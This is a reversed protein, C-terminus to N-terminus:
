AAFGQAVLQAADVGAYDFQLFPYSSRKLRSAILVAPFSQSRTNFFEVNENYLRRAFQIENEVETLEEMMNAFEESARLDPYREAVAIAGRLGCALQNEAVSLGEPGSVALAASRANALRDFIQQEHQAYGRVVAVLNPVLDHRQRLQVDIGSFAEDVKNRAHVLVNYTYVAWLLVLVAFGIAVYVPLV